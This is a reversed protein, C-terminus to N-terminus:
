HDFTKMGDVLTFGTNLLITYINEHTLTCSLCENRNIPKHWYHENRTLLPMVFLDYEDTTTSWDSWM